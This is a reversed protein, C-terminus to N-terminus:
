APFGNLKEMISNREIILRAHEENRAIKVIKYFLDEKIFPRGDMLKVSGPRGDMLKVSGIHMKYYERSIAVYERTDLTIIAFCSSDSIEYIIGLNGKYFYKFLSSMAVNEEKWGYKEIRRNM